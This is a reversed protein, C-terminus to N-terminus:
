GVLKRFLSDGFQHSGGANTMPALLELQLLSVGTFDPGLGTAFSLYSANASPFAVNFATGDDTMVAINSFVNLHADYVFSGSIDVSGGGTVGNFDWQVPVAAVPVTFAGLALIALWARAPRTSFLSRILAKM